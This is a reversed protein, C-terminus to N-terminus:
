TSKTMRVGTKRLDKFYSATKEAYYTSDITGHAKAAKMANILLVLSQLAEFEEKNSAICTKEDVVVVSIFDQAQISSVLLLFVIVAIVKLLNM